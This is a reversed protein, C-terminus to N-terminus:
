WKAHTSRDEIEGCYLLGKAKSANAIHYVGCYSSHPRTLSCVRRHKGDRVKPIPLTPLSVPTAVKSSPQSILSDHNLNRRPLDDSHNTSSKDESIRASPYFSGSM